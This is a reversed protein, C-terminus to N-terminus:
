AENLYPEGVRQLVKTHLRGCLCNNCDTLAALEDLINDACYSNGARHFEIQHFTWSAPESIEYEMTVRVRFRQTVLVCTQKHYGGIPRQCYFCRRENSAPRMAAETVRFKM